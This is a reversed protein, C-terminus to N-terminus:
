SAKAQKILRYKGPGAKEILKREMLRVVANNITSKNYGLSVLNKSMERWEATSHRQLYELTFDMATKGSSHKFHNIGKKTPKELQPPGLAAIVQQAVKSSKGPPMDPIEEVHVNLEDPLLKAMMSFLLEAQGSFEIKYKM